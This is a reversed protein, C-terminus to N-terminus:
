EEIKISFDDIFIKEKSPNYVYIKILDAQKISDPISITKNFKIWKNEEKVNSKLDFGHWYYSFDTGSTQLVLKADHKLSTQYLMFDVVINRKLSDPITKLPYEMTISFDNGAGIQSSKKGSFATETTITQMQGWVANKNECDNFFDTQYSFNYDTKEYYDNYWTKLAEAVNRAITKRGKEAYHETTWNQDVFQENEVANLNNVVSVGRNQYYNVLTKANENIMY